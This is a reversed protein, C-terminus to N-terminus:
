YVWIFDSKFFWKSICENPKKGLLNYTVGVYFQDERYLSDLKTSLVSEQAIVNVFM